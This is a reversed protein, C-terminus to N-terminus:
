ILGLIPKFRDNIAVSFEPSDDLACRVIGQQRHFVDRTDTQGSVRRKWKGWM